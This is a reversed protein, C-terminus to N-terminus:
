LNTKRQGLIASGIRVYTSKYKTALTYDNSMGLSLDKLGLNSNLNSIEIFYKEPNEDYPPIAMLGIINIKLEDRCYALFHQADNKNIGGKQTENGLNIQIFYSLKKNIESERKKLTEALKKSDVSHIFDFIQVAKKVKNTQLRGVMHLKISKNNKKTELWKSEAEQVKNEGFHLHGYDILPLLKPLPFTKSVCIIKTRYDNNINLKKINDQILILKNITEDNM